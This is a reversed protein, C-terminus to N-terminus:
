RSPESSAYVLCCVFPSLCPSHHAALSFLVHTEQISSLITTIANFDQHLTLGAIM